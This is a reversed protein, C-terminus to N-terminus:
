TLGGRGQSRGANVVAQNPSNAIRVKVRNFASQMTNRPALAAVTKGTM